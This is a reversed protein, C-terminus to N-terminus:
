SWTARWGIHVAGVAAADRGHGGAKKPFSFGRSRMRVLAASRDSNTYGHVPIDFRKAIWKIVGIVQVVELESGALQLAGIGGRLRFREYAVETVVGRYCQNWEYDLAQDPLMEVASDLTWSEGEGYWIAVGVHPDGPDIALVRRM